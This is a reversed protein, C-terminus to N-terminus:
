IGRMLGRMGLGALAEDAHDHCIEDVPMERRKNLGHRSGERGVM